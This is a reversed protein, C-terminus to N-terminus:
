DIAFVKLRKWVNSKEERVKLNEINQGFYNLRLLPQILSLPPTNKERPAWEEVQRFGSDRGLRITQNRGDVTSKIKM